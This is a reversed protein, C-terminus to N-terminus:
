RRSAIGVWITRKMRLTDGDHSFNTSKRTDERGHDQREHRQTKEDSNTKTARVFVIVGEVFEPEESGVGGVYM